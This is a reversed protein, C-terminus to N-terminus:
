WIRGPWEAGHLNDFVGDASILVRGESLATAAIIRDFPDRHDWPMIAATLIALPSIPLLQGGQEDVMKILRAIHLSMEPWKGLRVKQGIEYLSIASIAVTEATEIAEAARQTLRDKSTISWAWAHTDLLVHSM